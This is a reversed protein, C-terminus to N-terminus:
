ITQHWCFEDAYASPSDGASTCSASCTFVALTGWDLVDAGTIMQATAESLETEEGMELSSLLQPM